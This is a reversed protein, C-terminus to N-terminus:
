LRRVTARESYPLLSQSLLVGVGRLAKAVQSLEEPDPTAVRFSLREELASQRDQLPSRPGIVDGGPHSSSLQRLKVLSQAAGSLGLGAVRVRKVGDLRRHSRVM